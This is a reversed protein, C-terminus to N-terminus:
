THLHAGNLARARGVLNMISYCLSFFKRSPPDLFDFKLIDIDPLDLSKLYLVSGALSSRQIEPVTADLLNDHYVALPYLRYCKGPRTRGARGARQKAQVRSIQVVDLSYM